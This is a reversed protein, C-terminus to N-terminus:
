ESPPLDGVTGREPNRVLHSIVGAIGDVKPPNINSDRHEATELSSGIRSAPRGVLLQNLAVRVKRLMDAISLLLAPPHTRCCAWAEEAKTPDKM